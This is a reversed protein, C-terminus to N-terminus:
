INERLTWLDTNLDHRLLYRAGDSGLVRFYNSDPDYWRDIVEQVVCTRGELFFSSPREDGKYGAYCEVTVRKESHLKMVKRGM